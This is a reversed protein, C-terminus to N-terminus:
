LMSMADIECHPRPVPVSPRLAAAGRRPARRAGRSGYRAAAAPETARILSTETTTTHTTVSKCYSNVQNLWVCDCLDCVDCDSVGVTTVARVRM